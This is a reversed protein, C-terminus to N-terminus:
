DQNKEVRPSEQAENKNNTENQSKSPLKQQSSWIWAHLQQEYQPFQNMVQVQMEEPLQSIKELNKKILEDSLPRKHGSVLIKVYEDSLQSLIKNFDSKKADAKNLLISIINDCLPKLKYEMLSLDKYFLAHQYRNIELDLSPDVSYNKLLDKLSDLYSIAKHVEERTVSSRNLLIELNIPSIDDLKKVKSLSALKYRSVSIYSTERMLKAEINQITANMKEWNPHFIKVESVRSLFVDQGGLVKMRVMLDQMGKYLDKNISNLARLLDSSSSSIHKLGEVEHILRQNDDYQAKIQDFIMKLKSFTDLPNNFSHSQENITLKKNDLIKRAELIRLNVNEHTKGELKDTLTAILKNIDEECYKKFMENLQKLENLGSVVESSDFYESETNAIFLSNDRVEEELLSSSKKLGIILEKVYNRDNIKSSNGVIEKKIQQLYPLTKEHLFSSSDVKNEVEKYKKELLSESKSELLNIHISLAEEIYLFEKLVRKKLEPSLSEIMKSANIKNSMFNDYVSKAFQIYYNLQEYTMNDSRVAYGILEISKSYKIQKLLIEHVFKAALEKVSSNQTSQPLSATKMFRIYSETKEFEIAQHNPDANEKAEGVIADLKSLKLDISQKVKSHLIGKIERSNLEFDLVDVQKKLVDVRSRLFGVPLKSANKVLDNLEQDIEQLDVVFQSYQKYLELSLKQNNIANLIESQEHEPLSSITMKINKSKEDLYKLIVKSDEVIKTALGSEVGVQLSKLMDRSLLEYDFKPPNLKRLVDNKAYLYMEHILSDVLEKPTKPVQQSSKKSMGGGEYAEHKIITCELVGM